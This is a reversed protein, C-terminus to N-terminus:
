CLVRDELTELLKIWLKWIVLTKYTHPLHILLCHHIQLFSIRNLFLYYVISKCLKLHFLCIRSLFFYIWFAICLIIQIINNQILCFQLSSAFYCNGIHQTVIFNTESPYHLPVNQTFLRKNQTSSYCHFWSGICKDLDVPCYVVFIFEEM